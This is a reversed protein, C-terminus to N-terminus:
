RRSVLWQPNRNAKLRKYFCCVIAGFALMMFPLPHGEPVGTAGTTTATIAAAVNPAAGLDQTLAGDAFLEGIMTLTATDVTGAAGGLLIEVLGTGTVANFVESVSSGPAVTPFDFLINPTDNAMPTLDLAEPQYYDATNNTITYGWGLTTGATGSQSSAPTPTLTITQAAAIPPSLIVATSLIVTGITASIHKKVKIEEKAIKVKNRRNRRRKM